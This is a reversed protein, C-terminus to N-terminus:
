PQVIVASGMPKRKLSAGLSLILKRVAPMVFRFVGYSLALMLATFRMCALGGPYLREARPVSFDYAEAREDSYAIVFGSIM